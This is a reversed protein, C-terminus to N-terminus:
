RCRGAGTSSLTDFVCCLRGDLVIWLLCVELSSRRHLRKKKMNVDLHAGVFM